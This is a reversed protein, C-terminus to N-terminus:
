VDRRLDVASTKSLDVEVVRTAMVSPVTDPTLSLEPHVAAAILIPVGAVETKHV